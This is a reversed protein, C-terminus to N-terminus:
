IRDMDRPAGHLHVPIIAATRPTIRREVDAPDLNFTVPDIDAFVPVALNHLPALGTAIFSLAPVIVEAGPGVGLSALALSLAATGNAVAVCHDFGFREAWERELLSVPTEGDTDSVLRGGDLADLVAKREDDQIVPWEVQRREPPVAATGGLVALKSM